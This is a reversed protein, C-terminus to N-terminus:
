EGNVIGAMRRKKRERVFSVGLYGLCGLLTTGSILLGLYFWRQPFFELVLEIDYSGDANRTCLNQERCYEEVDVYWGNLFGNLEFHAEDSIRDPSVWPVWSGFFGTIKDNNFQAQWQPHFSESMALYFPTTAGKIHVMKKTPNTLEFTIEDPEVFNTQPDSVVYYRDSIDPLKVLSFNDYLVTNKTKGDSDYAYVLLSATTADEPITIKKSFSNWGLEAKDLDFRETINTGQAGNFSILYGAYKAKVGQYDFSFLYQTGPEVFMVSPGTCAIHRTASLELSYNGDSSEKVRDMELLGNEDYNNCDGVKKTWLEKEFSSNPVSNTFEFGEEKYILDPNTLDSKALVKDGRKTVQDYSAFKSIATLGVNDYRVINTTEGDTEYAYLFLTVSRVGAPVKILREYIEWEDKSSIPLRETVDTSTGTNYSIYYGAQKANVGKYSLSLLYEGPTVPIDKQSTCAIHKKALLELSRGREVSDTVRKMQIDSQDDYANCDSVESQWLGAEFSGNVIVDSGLTYFDAPINAHGLQKWTNTLQLRTVVEGQVALHTDTSTGLQYEARNSTTAYEADIEETDFLSPLYRQRVTLTTDDLFYEKYQPAIDVYLSSKPLIDYSAVLSSGSIQNSTLEDFVLSVLTSPVDETDGVVFNFPLDLTTSAFNYKEDLNSFSDYAVLQATSRIYPLYNKNEYVVLEETGIDIKELYPLKDLQDIYWQRINPNEEGGYFAFFSEEIKEEYSPVLVYKVSSMNILEKSFNQSLPSVVEEEIRSDSVFNEWSSSLLESGSLRPHTPDFSLWTPNRPISLTRYFNENNNVLTNLFAYDNPMEREAFLAGFESTIIPKTNFLILITVLLVFIHKLKVKGFLARKRSWIVSCLEALLVSYGFIIYLYFKSAERFANFGPIKHYLWSYLEPFPEGSQKALLIGLISLILWFIARKSRCVLISSFVILPLFFFYIPINQRVFWETGEGTWFPHFITIAQLLNFFDNGFIERSLIANSTLTSTEVSPLLWFVNLLFVVIAPLVFASLLNKIDFKTEKSILKYVRFSIIVPFMLYLIRIDHYGTVFLLLAAIIYYRTDNGRGAKLYFYFSALSYGFATIILIHGESYSAITYTNFSLLLSGLFAGPKSKTITKLLFYAVVSVLFLTPWFILIKETVNFNLGLWSFLGYLFHLPTRWVLLNIDGFGYLTEWYPFQLYELFTNAFKFPWDGYSFISFSFWKLFVVFTILTLFIPWAQKKLFTM